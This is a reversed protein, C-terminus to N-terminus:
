GTAATEAEALRMEYLGREPHDEEIEDLIRRYLEAAGAHDGTRSRTRAADGLAEHRQFPLEAQDAARLYAREADEWRGAQEYAKGLLATLQVALPDSSGSAAELVSAAQDPQESALYVQGLLLRAEPALPTGSFRELFRTLQAKATELDGMGLTQQVQELEGVAQQNLTARYDVYYVVGGLVLALVIGFLILTQSNKRAWTSLEFVKAVFVDDPEHREQAPRRRSTPHRKAM